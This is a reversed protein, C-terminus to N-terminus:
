FHGLLLAVLRKSAGELCSPSRVSCLLLLHVQPLVAAGCGIMWRHNLCPFGSERESALGTEVDEGEIMCGVGVPAPPFQDAIERGGM